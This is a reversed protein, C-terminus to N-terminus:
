PRSLRSVVNVGPRQAVGPTGWGGGLARVLGVTAQARAAQTQLLAAQSRWAARQAELLDLHSALGARWLRDAVAAARGAADAAQAQHTAQDALTSLAVLQDEVEKFAAMVQGRHRAQTGDEDARAQALAADRRGGDLLPAALLAGVSYARMSARLLDGLTPSAQGGSVTLALSPWWAREAAGRRGQAAQWQAAAAQVDPRRLLLDSPLGAPVLPLPPVWDPQEALNFDSAPERLLLALAHALEARRRDLARSDALQAQVEARQRLVALEAVGGQGLRAETIQLTQQWAQQSRQALTRQADTARLALYTHAVEAQVLLHADLALAQQAQLDHEAASQGAARRGSVDLEHSAQLGATLLTGSTGAANVLPGGQRAASAQATLQPWASAQAAGLAARAAAVRAAAGALGTNGQVARQVLADLVPDGFVQWWAGDTPSAAAPEVVAPGARFAAPVALPAPPSPPTTAACGALLSAALVALRGGCRHVPQRHTM